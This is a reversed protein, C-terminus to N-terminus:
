DLTDICEGNIQAPLKIIFHTGLPYEDDLFIEGRHNNIIKYSIYLGLGVGKIEKTSVFPEFLHRKIDEPIGPGNDMFHVEVFNQDASYNVRIELNPEAAINEMAEVANVIFNMFVQKLRAPSGCIICAQSMRQVVNTHGLKKSWALVNLSQSLVEVVDIDTYVEKQYRHFDLLSSIIDRIRDLESESIELAEKFIESKSRSIKKIVQISNSIALLPNNVEHGICSALRGISALKGQTIMSREAIERSKKESELRDLMVNIDTVLHGIEDSSEEMSIRRSLDKLGEIKGMTSSINLVRKVIHRDISLYLRLGLFVISSLIFIVLAIVHRNIVLFIENDSTTYLIMAPKRNIDKLIYYVTLKDKEDEYYLEKGLMRNYYFDNLQQEDMDLALVNEMTIDSVKKLMNKDIFRGLFLIGALRKNGTGAMIPTAVMMVPGGGSAIVAHIATPKRKVLARIKNIDRIINMDGLDLFWKNKYGKYYLIGEDVRTVLVIDMLDENFIERPFVDAEFEPSPNEVYNTMSDWDAWNAGLLKISKEEVALAIRMRNKLKEVFILKQEKQSPRLTLQFAIYLLLILISGSIIFLFILKNKLSM